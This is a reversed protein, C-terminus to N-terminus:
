LFILVRWSHGPCRDWHEKSGGALAMSMEFIPHPVCTKCPRCVCDRGKEGKQFAPPLSPPINMKEVSVLTFTEAEPVAESVQREGLPMSVPPTGPGPLHLTPSPLRGAAVPPHAKRGEWCTKSGTGNKQQLCPSAAFCGEVFISLM